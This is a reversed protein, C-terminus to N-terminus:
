GRPIKVRDDDFDWDAAGAHCAACNALTKVGPRAVVDPGIKRHKRQFYPVETIRLPAAARDLSALMKGSKRDTGAEAAHGVLYSELRSAAAADLEANQGFHRDLGALIRRHSEAPLLGPPFALHCAGCEKRYLAAAGPDAAAAATASARPAREGGDGRRGRGEQEHEEHDEDRRSWGHDSASALTATASLTFAVLAATELTLKM